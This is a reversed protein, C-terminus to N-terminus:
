WPLYLAALAALCILHWRKAGRSLGNHAKIYSSTEKEESVWYQNRQMSIFTILRLKLELFVFDFTMEQSRKFIWQRSKNSSTEKEESVWYQNRQMLIFTILGLKSILWSLSLILNLTTQFCAQPLKEATQKLNAAAIGNVWDNYLDQWQDYRINKVSAM